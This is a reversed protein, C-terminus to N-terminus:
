RLVRGARRRRRAAGVVRRDGAHDPRRHPVAAGPRRRRAARRPREIREVDYGPWATIRAADTVTLGCGVPTTTEDHTRAAPERLRRPHARGSWRSMPWIVAVVRGVINDSPVTGNEVDLHFRSDSSDGRNDGMVFFRGEPVVVDFSVQATGGGGPKLYTEDLAVGNLTIRHKADCCVIHDGGVGIVRKVLDEGTDSPLLGIWMLGNRVVGAAGSAPVTPPLWGGPDTFVVIEGRQVGSFQTTLKSVIIRDQVLLTDEMSSSPVYFAQAVFTRVLISLILAVGVILLLERGLSTQKAEGDVSPTM